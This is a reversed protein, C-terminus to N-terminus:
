ARRRLAIGTLAERVVREAVLASYDDTGVGTPIVEVVDLASSTSSPPWPACARAAPRDRDHRRAGAHRHRPHVRPRARRRRRDPLGARRRGGRDRAPRGRPHRPRPRRAHVPEHDRARGALRVGDRGPWYGRLGIQAYRSATSTARTSWAASSRATRSSSASCRRAPTPTPTSTCSRRRPRARGRVRADVARHDLPRRRARGAARRRRAGPRGDGRDRRALDGPRRPDGPADGFDVM